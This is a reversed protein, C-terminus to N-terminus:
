SNESSPEETGDEKRAQSPSHGVKAKFVKSFYKPDNFGVQFAVERVSMNGKDLLAQAKEIRRNQLLAAPSTQFVENCRYYFATKPMEMMKSLMMIDVDPNGIASDMIRNVKQRFIEDEESNGVRPLPEDQMQLNLDVPAHKRAQHEVSHWVIWVILGLLLFLGIGIMTYFLVTELNSQERQKKRSVLYSGIQNLNVELVGSSAGVYLL